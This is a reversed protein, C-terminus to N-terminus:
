KNPHICNYSSLDLGLATAAKMFDTQKLVQINLTVVQGMASLSLSPYMAARAGFMTYGARVFDEGLWVLATEFDGGYTKDYSPRGADLWSGEGFIIAEYDLAFPMPVSETGKQDQNKVELNYYVISPETIEATVVSTGSAANQEASGSISRDITEIQDYIKVLGMEKAKEFIERAHGCECTAKTRLLEKYGITNFHNQLTFSKESNPDNADGGYFLYPIRTESYLRSAREDATLKKWDDNPVGGGSGIGTDDSESGGSNGGSGGNTGEQIAIELNALGEQEENEAIEMNQKAAKAKSVIGNDGLVLSISVGALIILIVITIVLAILTIGESKRKTKKNM